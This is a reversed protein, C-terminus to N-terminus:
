LFCMKKKNGVKLKRQQEYAHKDTLERSYKENNANHLGYIISLLSEVEQHAIDNRILITEGLIARVENEEQPKLYEKIQKWLPYRPHFSQITTKSSYMRAFVQRREEKQILVYIRPLRLSPLAFQKLGLM